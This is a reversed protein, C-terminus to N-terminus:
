NQASFQSLFVQKLYRYAQTALPAPAHNFRVYARGGAREFAMNPLQLDVLVIPELVTLGTADTADTLLRGGGREGLAMSPLQNTSSPTLMLVKASITENLHDVTKVDVSQLQHQVMTVDQANLAVRVNVADKDMVYGLLDGQKMYTAMVDQQNPMVLYGNAASRIYLGDIKQQVRALEAHIKKIHEAIIVSQEPNELMAQYQDVELKALRSNLAVAQAALDPNELIAVIQGVSVQERHKVLVHQIVGESEARLRAHDPVWVVGEARTTHPLPLLFVSGCVIAVLGLMWAKAKLQPLGAPAQSVVRSFMGALPKILMSLVVYTLVSLGLLASKEGLWVVIAMFIFLSYALSLPAYAMLWKREGVAMSMSKVHRADVVLRTLRHTWYARSRLALNPLSFIDTLAYYADFRLLPNGNFILTSVSCVFAVVFAIDQTYGAQANVFVILAIAALALETMLGIASVLARQQRSKFGNAASADVYPAPTLMFLTIGVEKVDGGWRRVALAHSLEHISKIVPFTLWAILIFRATSMHTKSFAALMSWHAVLLSMGVLLLVLWLLLSYGNIFVHPLTPIRDLFATPNWLPIRFAFPNIFTKRKDVAKKKARKFLNPMDPAVDYILFEKQDLENLLQILETQTPADDGMTDLAAQWVQQVTFHGDCRGILAYAMGNIRYQTDNAENLLLYWQQERYHQAQVKIQSKLKPKLPAYKYWLPSFLSGQM